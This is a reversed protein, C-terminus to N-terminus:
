LPDRLGNGSLDSTIMCPKIECFTGNYGRALAIISNQEENLIQQQSEIGTATFKITRCNLIIGTM